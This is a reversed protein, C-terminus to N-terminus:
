ASSRGILSRRLPADLVGDRGPFGTRRSLHDEAGGRVARIAKDFHRGAFAAADALGLVTGRLEPHVEQWRAAHDRGCFFRIHPCRTLVAPGPACCDKDPYFVVPAAPQSELVRDGQMTVTVHDGCYGCLSSVPVPEDVMPPVALADVACNAYVTVGAITVRHPTPVLSFPYAAIVAEDRLYIAGTEHLTALAATIDKESLGTAAALSEPTVPQARLAARLIATRVYDDRNTV